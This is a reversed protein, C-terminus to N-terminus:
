LWTTVVPFHRRGLNKNFAKSSIHGLLSKRYIEKASFEKFYVLIFHYLQLFHSPFYQLEEAIVLKKYTNAFFLILYFM